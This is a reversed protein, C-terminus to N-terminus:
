DFDTYGQTIFYYNTSNIFILQTIYSNFTLTDYFAYLESTMGPTFIGFFPNAGVLKQGIMAIVLGDPSGSFYRPQANGLSSFFLSKIFSGDTYNYIIYTSTGSAM